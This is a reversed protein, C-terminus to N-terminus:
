ATRTIFTGICAFITITISVQTPVAYVFWAIMAMTFLTAVALTIKQKRSLLRWNM